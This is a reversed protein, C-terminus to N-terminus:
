QNQHGERRGIRPQGAASSGRQGGAQQQSDGQGGEGGRREDLPEGLAVGTADVGPAVGSAENGGVRQEAATQAGILGGEELELSGVGQQALVIRVVAVELRQGFEAEGAGVKGGGEENQNEGGAKAGGAVMAEGGGAVGCQRAGSGDGGDQAVAGGIKVKVHGGVEGHEGPDGSDGGSRGRGSVFM